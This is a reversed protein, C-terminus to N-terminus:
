KKIIEADILLTVHNSVVVGGMEMQKNWKIDFDQRNLVAQGSFGARTGFKSDMIMGNLKGKLVINKTIGHMTLKGFIDYQDGDRVVKTSSFLIDPYTQADFFDPSRLHADRKAIGTDISSVKIKASVHSLKKTKENFKVDATFKTFKGTVKAIVLHKVQFGVNTHALDVIFGEAFASFSFFASVLLISLMKKHNKM